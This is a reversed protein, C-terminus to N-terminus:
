TMIKVFEEFDITGSGDLDIDSIIGNLEEDSFTEDVEKLIVRFTEVRIFGEGNVDFLRFAAKLEDETLDAMLEDYEAPKEPSLDGSFIFQTPRNPECLEFDTASLVIL